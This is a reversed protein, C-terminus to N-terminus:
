SALNLLPDHTDSARTALAMEVSLSHPLLALSMNETLVAIPGLASEGGEGRMPPLLCPVSRRERDVRYAPYPSIPPLPVGGGISNRILDIPGM